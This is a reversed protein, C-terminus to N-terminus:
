EETEDEDTEYGLANIAEVAEGYYAGEVIINNGKWSTDFGAARVKRSIAAKQGRNLNTTFHKGNKGIIAIEM